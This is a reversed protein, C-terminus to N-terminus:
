PWPIYLLLEILRGRIEWKSTRDRYRPVVAKVVQGNKVRFAIPGGATPTESRHWLRARELIYIRGDPARIRGTGTTTNYTEIVGRM